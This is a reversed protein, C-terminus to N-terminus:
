RADASPWATRPTAPPTHVLAEGVRGRDSGDGSFTGAREIRLHVAAPFDLAWRPQESNSMAWLVGRADLSKVESVLDDTRFRKGFYGDFTGEYPPDLYALDGPQARALTAPYEALDVPPVKGLWAAFCALAIPDYITRKPYKPNAGSAMNLSGGANCRMLGNVAIRWVLLFRAATEADGDPRWAPARNYEERAVYYWAHQGAGDAPVERALRAAKASVEPGRARLATLLSVLHPNGDALVDLRMGAERMYYSDAGTGFFPVVVGRGPLPRPLHPLIQAFTRRKSGPMKLPLPATSMGGDDCANPAATLTRQRAPARARDVGGKGKPVATM